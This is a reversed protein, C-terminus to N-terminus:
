IYLGLVLALWTLILIILSPNESENNIHLFLLTFFIAIPTNIGISLSNSIDNESLELVIRCILGLISVFFASRIFWLRLYHDSELPSIRRLQFVDKLIRIIEHDVKNM